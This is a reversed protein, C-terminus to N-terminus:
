LTSIAILETANGFTANLLAGLQSSTHLAAQETVYGIREALPCLAALALFFTAVDGWQLRQVALALLGCPLLTNLRSGFLVRQTASPSLDLARM